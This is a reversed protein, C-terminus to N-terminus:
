FPLDDCNWCNGNTTNYDIKTIDIGCRQCNCYTPFKNESCFVCFNGYKGKYEMSYLINCNSCQFLHRDLFKKFKKSRNIKSPTTIKKM